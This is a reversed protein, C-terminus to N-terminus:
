VAELGTGAADAEGKRREPAMDLPKPRPFGNPPAFPRLIPGSSNPDLPDIKGVILILLGTRTHLRSSSSSLIIRHVSKQLQLEKGPRRM